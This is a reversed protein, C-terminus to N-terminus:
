CEDEDLGVLPEMAYITDVATDKRMFLETYLTYVCCVDAQKLLM